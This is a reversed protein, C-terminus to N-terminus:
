NTLSADEWQDCGFDNDVYSDNYITETNTCIWDGVGVVQLQPLIAYKCFGCAMTNM